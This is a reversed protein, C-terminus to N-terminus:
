DDDYLTVRTTRVAGAVGGQPQALNVTFMETPERVGDDVLPILVREVTAGPPFTLIQRGTRAYDDEERATDPTTWWIVRTEKTTDGTRVVDIAVVSHDERAAIKPVDLSVAPLEHQPPPSKNTPRAAATSAPRRPPPAQTREEPAPPAADRPTEAEHVVETDHPAPGHAETSGPTDAPPPAAEAPPAAAHQPTVGDGAATGPTDAPTVRAAVARLADLGRVKLEEASAAVEGRYTAVGDGRYTAILGAIAAVAAMPLVLRWLHLPLALHWRTPPQPRRLTAGAGSLALGALDLFEAVSGPRRGSGELVARIANLRAAPIAGHAAARLAHPSTSGTYLEAALRALGKLDDSPRPPRGSVKAVRRALFNTLMFRRDMTVIVNEARVDGHAIEREHAYALASGIARVIDDAEGVDLREPMLHTLVDRLPEGDLREGTVYYQQGNSGLELVRAINPHELTRLHNFERQLAALLSRSAGIHAPLMWLGVPRNNIL